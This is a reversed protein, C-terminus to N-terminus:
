PVNFGAPVMRLVHVIIAHGDLLSPDLQQVLGQTLAAIALSGAGACVRARKMEGRPAAVRLYSGVGVRRRAMGHRLGVEERQM